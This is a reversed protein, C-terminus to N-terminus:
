GYRPLRLISLAVRLRYVLSFLVKLACEVFEDFLEHGFFGPRFNGTCIIREKLTLEM